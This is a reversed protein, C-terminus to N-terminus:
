RPCRGKLPRRGKKRMLGLLLGAGLLLFTTPEPIIALSEFDKLTHTVVTAAGTGLDIAFIEGKENLGWLIGTLPDFAAGSDNGDLGLPGIATSAGTTKNLTVLNDTRGIGYLLGGWSALGDAAYPATSGLPTAKGTTPDLRWLYEDPGADSLFLMGTSFTLGPDEAGHPGLLGSAGVATAAGTSLCLTVLTNTADDWGYLTGEPSFSLGEIARFGTPGIGIRTATGTYLEIAYLWDDGDSQVSHGIVALVDTPWIATLILALALLISFVLPSMKSSPLNRGAKFNVM